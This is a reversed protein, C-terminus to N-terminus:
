IFFFVFFNSSNIFQLMFDPYLGFWIVPLFLLFLVFFERLEIDYSLNISVNKINGFLIRNSLWLSYSGGLVVSLGCLFSLKPAEQFIGLLILFEGVFSSTGPFAINSLTFLLFFSSYLPMIQVLGGYYNLERTHYRRYLVGILFFLASSVFGHSLSQFIAGVVGFISFCFLGVVILNMHAVSSYAIIRKLDTQRIAAFSAYLVGMGGLTSIFPMFFESAIPCLPISLRMFGYVGLKLLIGALLVSGITPAEVHAEPLWIHLPFLPIKSAFSLFFALWLWYQEEFVLSSHLLYELNFTGIILYLYLVGILFLISGCLTYFFLLYAAWVKRERSGWYRIMFFMPILIAEFFVYFFFLDLTSFVLLLFIEILFINLLFYNLYKENSVFLICLFVLFTTLVFFCLSLGDMGFSFSVNFWFSQVGFDYFDQFYFTTCDFISLFSLAHIFLFGAAFISCNLLAKRSSSVSNYFFSLFLLVVFNFIFTFPLM